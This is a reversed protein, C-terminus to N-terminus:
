GYSNNSCRSEVTSQSTSDWASKIHTPVASYHVDDELEVAPWQVREGHAYWARRTSLACCLAPLPSLFCARHDIETPIQGLLYNNMSSSGHWQQTNFPEKRLGNMLMQAYHACKPYMKENLCDLDDFVTSLKYPINITGNEESLSGDGIQLLLNSFEKTELENKFYVRM